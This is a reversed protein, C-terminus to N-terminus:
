WLDTLNRKLLRAEEFQEIRKRVSTHQKLGNPDEQLIHLQDDTDRYVLTIQNKKLAPQRFLWNHYTPNHAM